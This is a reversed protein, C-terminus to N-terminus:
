KGVAKGARRAAFYSLCTDRWKGADIVQQDLKALVADFRQDDVQGRLTAWQGRMAKVHEVGASYRFVLEDWVTRGSHMRHDWPVHHFWLLLQDPCADAEAYIRSVEPAYEALADSGSATRDSGIGDPGARHYDAFQKPAATYHSGGEMIHTLGIPMEYDVMAERSGGMVDTATRVVAPDNGWTQRAWEDAVADASLAPDWALRGFAYWNAQAFDHGCWNRDTGTNAVGAIGTMPQHELISAITTGPGARFTDADLFEKWTPGLYALSTSHGTNEQTVEVEGMLPTRPMVGFLPHFMERPQFDIPGYKVQLFVNPRFHGDLPAFEKFARKARDPDVRDDYVFCRWMVVGGHPALADAMCNAGDAHTRHYDRPGPQGESNAKVLFGGFDPILRYIEDAKARWWAAVGPDLPDATPLHGLSKPSAFNVSLFVRVGYPRLATAIAAAKSLYRPDLQEAKANVNNLVAGNIGISANARAYDAYRPDVRDPLEPWQWISRGAYGREVTGDPNDWHDLLRLSLKPRDSVNLHDIPQSTQMRRLLDFTGYLLGMRGTSAIVILPRGAVATTRIVFGEDGLAALDADWGLAKVVPSAAPTGVVVAPTTGPTLEGLPRVDTGTLGSLGRALEGGIAAGTDSAEQVVVTRTAAAYEARRAVDTVADYRLWLRYGDEASAVAPVLVLALVRAAHFLAARRM